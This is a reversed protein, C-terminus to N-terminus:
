SYPEKGFEKAFVLRASLMQIKAQSVSLNYRELAIQEELSKIIDNINPKITSEEVEKVIVPPVQPNEAQSYYQQEWHKKRNKIDANNHITELIDIKYNDNTFISKYPPNYGEKNIRNKLQTIIHDAGQLGKSSMGIYNIGPFDDNFVRYIIKSM